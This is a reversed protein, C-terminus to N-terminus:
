RLIMPGARVPTPCQGGGSLASAIGSLLASWGSTEDDEGAALSGAYALAAVRPDIQAVPELDRFTVVPRSTGPPAPAISAPSVDALMESLSPQSNEQRTPAPPAPSPSPPDAPRIPSPAPQPLAVLEIADFESIRTEADRGDDETPGVGPVYVSTLAVVHVCASFVIGAWLGRRHRRVKMATTTM